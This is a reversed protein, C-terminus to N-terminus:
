SSNMLSKLEKLKSNTPFKEFTKKPYLDPDPTSQNIILLDPEGQVLKALREQSMKIDKIIRHICQQTLNAM